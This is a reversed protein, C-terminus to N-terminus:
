HGPNGLELFWHRQGFWGASAVDLVQMLEVASQGTLVQAQTTVPLTEPVLEKLGAKALRVQLLDNSIELAFDAGAAAIDSSELEGIQELQVTEFLIQIDTAHAQTRWRGAWWRAHRGFGQGRGFLLLAALFSEPM